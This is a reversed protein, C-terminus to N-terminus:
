SEYAAQRIDFTHLKDTLLIIDNIIIRIIINAGGGGGVKGTGEINTPAM